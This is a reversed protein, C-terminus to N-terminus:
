RRPLRCIRQLFRWGKLMIMTNLYYEDELKGNATAAITIEEMAFEFFWKYAALNEAKAWVNKIQPHSTGKFNEATTLTSSGGDRNFM